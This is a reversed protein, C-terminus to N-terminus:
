VDWLTTSCSYSVQVSKSCSPQLPDGGKAEASSPDGCSPLSAASDDDDDGAAGNTVASVRAKEEDPILAQNDLRPIVSEYTQLPQKLTSIPVVVAADDAATGCEQTDPHGVKILDSNDEDAAADASAVKGKVEQKSLQLSAAAIDSLLAVKADSGSVKDKSDIGSVRPVAQSNGAPSKVATERDSDTDPKPCSQSGETLSSIDAGDTSPQQLSQLAGTSAATAASVAVASSSSPHASIAVPTANLQMSTSSPSNLVTDVKSADSEAAPPSTESVIKAAATSDVGESQTSPSSSLSTSGVIAAAQQQQPKQQTLGHKIAHSSLLVEALKQARAFM